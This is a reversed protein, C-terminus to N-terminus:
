AIKTFGGPIYAAILDGDSGGCLAVAGVYDGSAVAVAHGYGSSDPCLKDGATITGGAKLKVVSGPGAVVAAKGDKPRNCLVGIPQENNGALAVAFITTTLKVFHHQYDVGGDAWLDGYAVLGPIPRIVEEFAANGITM